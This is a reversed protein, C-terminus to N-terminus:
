LSPRDLAQRSSKVMVPKRKYMLYLKCFFSLITFNHWQDPGESVEVPQLM